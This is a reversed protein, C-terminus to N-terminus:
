EQADASEGHAAVRPKGADHRRARPKPVADIAQLVAVTVKTPDRDGIDTRLSEKGDTTFIVLEM